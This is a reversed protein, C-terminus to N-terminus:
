LDAAIRGIHPPIRASRATPRGALTRNHATVLSSHHICEISRRGSPRPRVPRPPAQGRQPDRYPHALAERDGYLFDCFRNLSAADKLPEITSRAQLDRSPPARHMECQVATSIARGIWCTVETGDVVFSAISGVLDDNSTVAWLTNTPSEVVKAMHADFRQRDDPDDPTFAAM